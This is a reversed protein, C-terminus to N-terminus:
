YHSHSHPDPDTPPWRVLLCHELSGTPNSKKFNWKLKSVINLKSCSDLVPNDCDKQQCFGYFNNHEVSM